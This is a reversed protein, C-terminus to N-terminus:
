GHGPQQETAEGPWSSKLCGRTVFTVAAPRPSHDPQEISNNPDRDSM